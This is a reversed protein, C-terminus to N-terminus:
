VEQEPHQKSQEELRKTTEEPSQTQKALLTYATPIVFLTLITAVSVGAFIVVGIVMRSEFGPGTAFVLPISSMVTTLSTMIIPRLRQAAADVIAQEFAIGKDRLQNAFEVILIGNKASLGILMVIGIQSYINLTSDTIFLGYMAGVLGLPVTLMIVLPHVFSEFQAALVLFTVTLALIFVYTMASAGEYFLQSEGKYDIAGDIDNEEAAVKNLFDLAQELTYDGALNATITIARMRNYRNLRSATAEEKITILSDLPVLEDSRSKVYIDSINDPASFDAKTGKLIVDYEEGRDIFTTVRRQGLMTELTQGIASVSVGLDAAKTKDISILFQPFTEKYDHDLRVLGKNERARELIRDRWAALEDYDNGQLVFEIPRSNGGGGIGRRMIAFARIDTVDQMKGSIEDMVEWTSRKREDWDPMGIIAVGGQGGWGPVRILVRSLEESDVYPLLREEIKAMNQSNNEYSAGEPGNMMVFFTGRDEKPTLESPIQKFLSYSTFGALALMVILSYKRSLNDQLVRRYGQELRTFQRDMWQSFRNEKNSPKLVKSCLAPSLTLATISSFLVAASVAFAFETFLAGIRGDMFVLPIFVAVLVLTTAIIAFGVERAGRYAALLKPEGLEIRRYINELMVIADDVVLGIALVLALLTLLNISYGMALLFMFTAVLAVPVTVAPILTARINGLFIYIVLVVLAMAIALTSYVEAISERIFISSDYSDEITTGQPLNRKIKELEKRANDVVELTNAKAQKVVGLGIMNKGNGRFTSEDDAAELVVQAVEGLRVLYGQEGRKIVLNDFDEQTKYSRAIRVSFDRDVSEIEGAPLEVNERRLVQEIDSSTVGRAAMAKRDLWIKMAYQREGGIRVNSVGDVVALRDVIFRQAYDSLQLTDMTESNLVFWAIPSEDSNSKSVEPPRVQEPLRDLARSVRERVDNAAADIDRDINFEITINSSGNRSSSNISKIGEIGSIRNELVQTIKTEVVEASAGTYNTSVSVIPTEIDPYERLPLMTFAVLGFTLLLLNIVIAFIPRKVATDTIRM